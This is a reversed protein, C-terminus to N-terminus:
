KVVSIVSEISELVVDETASEATITISHMGIPLATVDLEAKYSGANGTIQSEGTKSPDGSLTWKIKKGDSEEKIADYAQDSVNFTLINKSDVVYAVASELEGLSIKTVSPYEPNIEISGEGGSYVATYTADTSPFTSPLEPDWRLFIHDDKSPNPIASADIPAGYTGILSNYTFTDPFFGGDLELTLSVTKRNIEFEVSSTGDDNITLDVPSFSIPEYGEPINVTPTISVPTGAPGYAIHEESEYSLDANQFKYIIKYQTDWIAYLDLEVNEVFLNTIEQDIIETSGTKRYIKWSSLRKKDKWNKIESDTYNPLDDLTITSGIEFRKTTKKIEQGSDEKDSYFHFETTFGNLLDSHLDKSFLDNCSFSCLSYISLLLLSLWKKIKDFNIKM